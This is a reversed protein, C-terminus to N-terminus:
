ALALDLYSNVSSVPHPEYNQLYGSPPGFRFHFFQQIRAIRQVLIEGFAWLHSFLDGLEGQWVLEAVGDAVLGVPPALGQDEEM